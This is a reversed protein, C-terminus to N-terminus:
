KLEMIVLVKDKFVLDQAEFGQNGVSSYVENLSGSSTMQINGELFRGHKIELIRGLSLKASGALVEAKEIADKTALEAIRKETSEKLGDSAKFSFTFTLSSYNGSFSNLIKSINEKSNKFEMLLRQTAVYGSDKYKGKNDFIRNVHVTFNATNLKYDELNLKSLQKTIQTTEMNLNEVSSSLDLKVSRLSFSIVGIDPKVSVSANGVSEIKSQSFAAFSSLLALLCIITRKM